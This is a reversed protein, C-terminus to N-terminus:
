HCPQVAPHVSEATCAQLALENNACSCHCCKRQLICDANFRKALWGIKFVANDRLKAFATNCNKENCMMQLQDCNTLHCTVLIRNPMCAISAFSKRLQAPAISINAESLETNEVWNFLFFSFIHSSKNVRTSKPVHLSPTRQFSSCKCSDVALHTHLFARVGVSMVHHIIKKTWCGFFVHRCM